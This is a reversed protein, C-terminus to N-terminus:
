EFTEVSFLNRKCVMRKGNDNIVAVLHRWPSCTLRYKEGRRLYISTSGGVYTLYDGRKLENWKNSIYLDIKKNYEEALKKAELYEKHTVM